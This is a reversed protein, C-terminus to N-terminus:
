AKTFVNTVGVAELLLLVVFVVGAVAIISEGAPMEDIRGSLQALEDPSMDAVRSMAMEHSIGYSSLEAVVEDRLLYAEIRTELNGAEAALADGTSVLQAHAPMVMMSAVLVLVVLRSLTKAIM